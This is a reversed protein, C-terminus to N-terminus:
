ESTVELKAKCEAYIAQVNQQLKMGQTRKYAEAFIRKLSDMSDSEAMEDCLTQVYDIVEQQRRREDERIDDESKHAMVPEQSIGEDENIVHIANDLREARPWYKSARKVITKRAMEEWFNKWPGNKAKSTAETAKIEALSMEETLYDGDATKVTCYGGVVDGRDGFANYKHTPVTDLGNSEYTDNSYVLKCQGWKISGTSQALHLLGMYSIDLCVMGDRPVLYALKSAPNLTIGIAAVNIIANQASTPNSLATKALYDNRQFYQIAFQSEKAWTVSQDTVAGVFLPEQQKVFEVISMSM